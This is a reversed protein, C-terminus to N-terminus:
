VARFYVPLDLMVFLSTLTTKCPIGCLSFLSIETGPTGTLATRFCTQVMLRQTLVKCIVRNSVSENPPIVATVSNPLSIHHQLLLWWPNPLGAQRV